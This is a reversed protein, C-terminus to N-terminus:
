TGEQFTQGCLIGYSCYKCPPALQLRGDAVVDKTPPSDEDHEVVGTALVKRQAVEHRRLQYASVVAQWVADVALGDVRTAGPLHAGTVVLEGSHAILFGIGYSADPGDVLHAYTALQLATGEELARVRADRRQWKVDLVIRPDDLVLDPRGQIPFPEAAEYRAEVARVTAGAKSIAQLLLGAAVSVRNRLDAREEERGPLLLEPVHLELEEDFITRAVEGVDGPDAPPPALLKELVLHALKGFALPGNAPRGLSSRVRLPYHLAWRLPCEILAQISAPSEVDPHALDEPIHWRRRPQPLPRPILNHLRAPKGIEPRQRVISSLTRPAAGSQLEDWLWHPHVPEGEEDFRPCILLLGETAMDLPRRARSPRVAPSIRPRPDVGQAVLRARDHESLLARDEPPAARPRAFWWWVLIRGPGVVADPRAVSSIGAEAVLGPVGPLSETVLRCWALLQTFAIEPVGLESVVQEFLECQQVVLALAFREADSLDSARARLDAWERVLLSRRNAETAPYPGARETSPGFIAALRARVVPRQGEELSELGREIAEAWVSSGVAPWDQLARLLRFGVARPVPGLPMALLQHAERPDPPRLGMFLVLPLIHLLDSPCGRQGTTPLGFRHLARDLTADAGILVVGELSEQAALWAALDEAAVLPGYGRVLELTGDGVPCFSGTRAAALDGGAPPSPLPVRVVDTGGSRLGSFVDQWLRDHEVIPDTLELRELPLRRRGLAMVIGRLRDPFGYRVESTVNALRGLGETLAEERWGALVLEDRVRLVRRATGIPDVELSRSWPGATRQLARVMGVVREVSSPRPGGLGLMTELRDVLGLPGVWLENFVADRGALPGPWAGGDFAEDFRM